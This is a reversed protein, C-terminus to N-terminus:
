QSRKAKKVRPAQSEKAEARPRGQSKNAKSARMKAKRPKGPRAGLTRCAQACRRARRFSSLAARDFEICM